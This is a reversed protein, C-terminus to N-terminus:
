KHNEIPKNSKDKRHQERHKMRNKQFEEFQEKTIIKDMKVKAHYYIKNLRYQLNAERKMLNYIQTSYDGYQDMYYHISDRVKDLEKKIPEAQLTVTKNVNEIQRKQKASLNSIMESICPHDGRKDGHRHQASVPGVLILAVLLLLTKRMNM